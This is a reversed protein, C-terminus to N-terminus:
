LRNVFVSLGQVYNETEAWTLCVKAGNIYKERINEALSDLLKKDESSMDSEVQALVGSM